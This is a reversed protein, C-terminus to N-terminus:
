SKQTEVFHGIPRVICFIPTERYIKRATPKKKKRKIAAINKKPDIYPLINFFHFQVLLFSYINFYIIKEETRKVKWKQNLAKGYILHLKVDIKVIDKSHSFRKRYLCTGM